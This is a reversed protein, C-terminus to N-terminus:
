KKKLNRRMVIFLAVIAGLLILVSAIFGDFPLGTILLSTVLSTMPRDGIM